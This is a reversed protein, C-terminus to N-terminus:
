RLLSVLSDLDCRDFADVYRALLDDRIDGARAPRIGGVAGGGALTARARQLASTVSAVSSGLLEAV